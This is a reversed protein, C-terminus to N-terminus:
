LGGRRASGTLKSFDLAFLVCSFGRDGRGWSEETPFFAFVELDSEAYLEGTYAEFPEICSEYTHRDLAATGPFDGGLVSGVSSVAFVENDHPESCPVAAVHTVAEDLSEPDNFCDGAQMKTVDLDGGSVIEGSDDRDADDLGTFLWWGGFVLVGLLIRIAASSWIRRRRPSRAPVEQDRDEDPQPIQGISSLDSYDILEDNNRDDSSM